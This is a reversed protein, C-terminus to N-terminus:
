LVAVWALVGLTVIGMVALGTNFDMLCVLLEQASQWSGRNSSATAPYGDDVLIAPQDTDFCDDVFIRRGSQHALLKSGINSFISM